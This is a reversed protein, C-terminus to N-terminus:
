IECNGKLNFEHIAYRGSSSKDTLYNEGVFYDRLVGLRNCKKKGNFGIINFLSCHVYWLLM